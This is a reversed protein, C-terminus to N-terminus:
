KLSLGTVFPRYSLLRPIHPKGPAGDQELFFSQGPRSPNYRIVITKGTWSKEAQFALAGDSYTAPLFYAGSYIEGDAEYDYQIAVAWRAHYNKEEFGEEGWGNLSFPVENEDLQYSGRVTADAPPWNQARGEVLWSRMRRCLYVLFYFVAAPIMYIFRIAVRAFFWFIHEQYPLM